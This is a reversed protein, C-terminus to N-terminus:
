ILDKCAASRGAYYEDRMKIGLIFGLMLIIAGHTVEGDLPPKIKGLEKFVPERL